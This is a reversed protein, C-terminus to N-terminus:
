RDEPRSKIRLYEDALKSFDYDDPYDVDFEWQVRHPPYGGSRVRELFDMLVRWSIEAHPRSYAGNEDDLFAHYAGPLVKIKYSRNASELANRLMLLRHRAVLHDFEGYVCLVPVRSGHVIDTVSDPEWDRQYAAGYFIVCAAIDKLAMAAVLPYRGTACAGWVVLHTTDAYDLHKLYEIAVGIDDIIADDAMVYRVEGRVVADLDPARFYLNPALTVLGESALRIALERTHQVLGYREHLLIFAPHRGAGIPRALIAPAGNSLRVDDVIVQTQDIDTLM